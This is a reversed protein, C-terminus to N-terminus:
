GVAFAARDRLFNPNYFPDGRELESTGATSSCRGTSSTSRRAGRPRPRTSSWGRAPRTSSRRRGLSRLRQCLDFDEYGTAYNEEFGGARRSRRGSSASSTAASRRSTAPAPSRATTATPTPRSGPSCRCRRTTSGSRSGPRRPAGTPARSCRARRRRCGPLAAHLAAAARALRARGVEAADSCFVLWEGSARAAGLNAARSRSFLGDGGAVVEVSGAIGGPGRRGDPAVVIVEGPSRASVSSCRAAGPAVARRRTAAGRSVVSVPEGRARGRHTATAAAALEARHPIAPHPVARAEVGIRELHESVARAQLEPVGQKQEAGAAISGPIARWHYLIRPIHHIRDTRESVRLMFEFDQIKDFAPTSAAPRARRALPPRGAPPRHVDGRARLDAVLRAQLLPRRPHRAATLKDSDSYVVDLEPDATSRRPSACCRTAPSCTTTTSSPSSSAARRAALAANTAASIGQNQELHTVEIREDSARTATSCRGCSRAARATTPSGCSGSPISRPASRTSRRAGPLAPETEYTPMVVSILPRAPLARAEELAARRARGGSTLGPRRFRGLMLGAEAAQVRRRLRDALRLPRTLQWSMSREYRAKTQLM